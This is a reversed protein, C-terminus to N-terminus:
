IKTCKYTCVNHKSTEIYKFFYITSNSNLVKSITTKSIDYLDKNKYFDTKYYFNHNPVHCCPAYYGTSTIFHEVNSTKCRPDIDRQKNTHWTIEQHDANSPRLSDSEDSWRSSNIVLFEDFGLDKSFQKVEDIDAENFSFPIFQWVMTVNGRCVDIGVKISNWDANIRYTTFTNPLGDIAFVIRDNVDMHSVLEEWWVKTKYSGNTHLSISAGSQKLWAVMEILKDYYIADGYDGCIIVELGDLNIDLFSKFHELNLQKNKWASPFKNIFETRACKPCKLTCMNTPEITLGKISGIMNSM